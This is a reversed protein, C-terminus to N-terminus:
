NGYFLSNSAYVIAMCGDARAQEVVDTFGEVNVWAGEGPSEEYM